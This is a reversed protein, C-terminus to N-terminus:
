RGGALSQAAALGQRGAAFGQMALGPGIGVAQAAGAASRAAGVNQRGAGVGGIASKASSTWRKWRGEPPPNPNTDSPLTWAALRPCAKHVWEPRYKVVAVMGAVLAVLFLLVMFMHGFSWNYKLKYKILLILLLIANVVAMASMCKLAMTDNQKKKERSKEIHVNAKIGKEVLQEMNWDIRDLVTGQDIVLVALEKFIHHLEAVHQTMTAISTNRTGALSEMSDLQQQQLTSQGSTSGGRQSGPMAQGDSAEGAKAGAGAGAQRRKIEDLYSRQTERCQKSLQSLQAALKRQVNTRFEEDCHSTSGAGRNKVQHISSECKRILMTMRSSIAQVEEEAQDDNFVAVLRRQQAKTLNKLAERIQKIGDQAEEAVDVWEPPLSAREFVAAPQHSSVNESRVDTGGGLLMQGMDTGPLLDYGSQTAAHRRERRHNFFVTSLDRTVSRGM